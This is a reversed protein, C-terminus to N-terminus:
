QIKGYEVDSTVDTRRFDSNKMNIAVSRRYFFLVNVSFEGGFSAPFWVGDAVREYSVSFGLGKVNTGLLVRVAMPVKEALTTSVSIPQFEAADVLAEGKWCGEGGEEIRKKPEFTIRYAARGRYTETGALHYVHGRQARATLPFLDQPVGDKEFKPMEAMSNAAEADATATISQKADKDCNGTSEQKVLKRMEGKPGPAVTYERKEQCAAKGNTHRIAGLVEQKYVFQTRAQVSKEQNAAVREMIEDISPPTQAFAPAALIVWAIRKM